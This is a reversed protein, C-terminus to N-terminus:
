SWPTLVVKGTTKRGELQRHAEAAESLPFVTQASLQLSGSGVLKALEGLATAIALPNGFYGGLNFGIVSQNAALLRIPSLDPISGSAAGFTVLRGFPALIDLSKTFVDGGVMELIIDAGKGNTLEKVQDTWGAVTYNVGADAGLSTVLALKDETSATGIVKGAGFAKALQVALIGVGGAAAQVLVTQGSRVPAVEKLIFYATLGQIFLATAQVPSLGEPLPIVNEALTVVYQAYGGSRGSLAMVPTGVQVTDVDPGLEAITGAVESGLVFPLPSTELYTGARRMTDSFNVGAAEVRILVQGRGPTPTPADEYKLVEPGGLEYFRIQKM